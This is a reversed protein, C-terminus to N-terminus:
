NLTKLRASKTGSTMRVEFGFQVLHGSGHAQWGEQGACECDCLGLACGGQETHPIFPCQVM